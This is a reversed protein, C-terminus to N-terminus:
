VRRPPKPRPRRLPPPITMVAAAVETAEEPIATVEVWEGDEFIFKGRKPLLDSAGVTLSAERLVCDATHTRIAYDKPAQTASDNEVAVDDSKRPLTRRWDLFSKPNLPDEWDYHAAAFEARVTDEEATRSAV